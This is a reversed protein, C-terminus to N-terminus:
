FSPLKFNILYNQNVYYDSYPIHIFREPDKLGKSEDIRYFRIRTYNKSLGVGFFSKTGTIIESVHYDEIYLIVSTGKILHLFYNKQLNDPEQM